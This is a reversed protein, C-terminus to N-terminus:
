GLMDELIDFLTCSTVRGRCLMDFISRAEDADTSISDAYAIDQEGDAETVVEISYMDSEENEYSDNRMFLRYRVKIDDGTECDFCVLKDELMMM